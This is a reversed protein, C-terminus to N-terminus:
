RFAATAKAGRPRSREGHYGPPITGRVLWVGDTLIATYPEFRATSERSLESHWRAKEYISDWAERAAAIALDATPVAPTGSHPPCALAAPTSAWIALAIVSVPLGYRGRRRAAPLYRRPTTACLM